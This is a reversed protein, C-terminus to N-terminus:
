KASFAPLEEIKKIATAADWLMLSGNVCLEALEQREPFVAFRNAGCGTFEARYRGSEVDWLGIGQEGFMPATSTAVMVYKGDPWWHLDGVTYAPLEFPRLEHLLKGNDTRWIGIRYGAVTPPNAEINDHAIVVAVMAQDPSFGLDVIRGSVDLQSVDRHERPDWIKIARTGTVYAARKGNKAPFYALAEKPIHPLPDALQWTKTDFVLLATHEAEVLLYRGDPTFQPHLLRPGGYARLKRIGQWTQSDHVDLDGFDGVLVNRGDPSFFLHYPLGPSATLNGPIPMFSYPLSKVLKHSEADWLNIAGDLQVTIIQKQDPSIAIAAYQSGTGDQWQSQPAFKFAWSTLGCDSLRLIQLVEEPLNARDYVRAFTENGAPVQVVLRRGASPLQSHDDPLRAVLATLGELDQKSIVPYGGGKSDDFRHQFYAVRGESSVSCGHTVVEYNPGFMAATEDNPKQDDGEIATIVVLPTPEGNAGLTRITGDDIQLPGQRYDAIWEKYNSNEQSLAGLSDAMVGRCIVLGAIAITFVKALIM